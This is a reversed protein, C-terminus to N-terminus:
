VAVATVEWFTVDIARDTVVVSTSESTTMADEKQSSFTVLVGLAFVVSSPWYPALLSAHPKTPRAVFKVVEGPVAEYPQVSVVALAVQPLAAM